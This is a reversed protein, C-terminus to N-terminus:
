SDDVDRRPSFLPWTGPLGKLTYDGREDFGIGSGAVLDVVTGSVLVEGAAANSQVRAAIHVAIGGVDDGRREM